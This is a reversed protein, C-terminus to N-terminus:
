IVTDDAQTFRQRLFVLAHRGAERWPGDWGLRGAERYCFAQRAAVRSRRPLLVPKGAFDIREHYGGLTHDAGIRWWLPLATGFLWQRLKKAAVVLERSSSRPHHM